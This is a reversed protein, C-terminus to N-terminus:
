GGGAKHLPRRRRQREHETIAAAKVAARKRKTGESSGGRHTGTNRGVREAARYQIVTGSIARVYCGWRINTHLAGRGEKVDAGLFLGLGEINPQSNIVCINNTIFPSSVGKVVLM